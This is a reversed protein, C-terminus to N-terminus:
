QPPTFVIDQGDIQYIHIYDVQYIGQDKTFFESPSKPWFPQTEDPQNRNNKFGVAFSSFISQYNNMGDIDLDYRGEIMGPKYTFHPKGDFTFTMEYETWLLGYTHFQDNLTTGEKSYFKRDGGKLGWLSRHQMGTQYGASTPWLHLTPEAWAANGYSENVDIEQTFQGSNRSTSDSTTWLATWLGGGHPIRVSAELYGYKFKMKEHTIIMGGYYAKEDFSAQMKMIGNQITINNPSRFSTKNNWGPSSSRSGGVITWVNQNIDDISNGDFNELFVPRYFTTASHKKVAQKYDGDLNDKATFNHNAPANELIISLEAIATALAHISGGNVLCRSGEFRIRFEDHRLDSSSITNLPTNGVVIEANFESKDDDRVFPVMAGALLKIAEQLAEIQMTAIYSFNYEPAVIRTAPGIAVGGISLTKPKPIPRPLATQRINLQNLKLPADSAIQLSGSAKAEFSFELTEWADKAPKLAQRSLTTGAASVTLNAAEAKYMLRVHYANGPAVTYSDTRLFANSPIIFPTNPSLNKPAGDPFDVVHADYLAYLTIDGRPVTAHPTRIVNGDDTRKIEYWGKFEAGDIPKPKPLPKAIYADALPQIAGNNNLFINKAALNSNKTLAPDPKEVEAVILDDLHTIVDITQREQTYLLFILIPSDIVTKDTKFFFGINHWQNDVKLNTAFLGRSKGGPVGIGDLNSGRAQFSIAIDKQCEVKYRVEVMYYTDPKLLFPANAGDIIAPAVNENGHNSNQNLYILGLEDDQKYRGTGKPTYISGPRNFRNVFANKYSAYYEDIGDACAEFSNKFDRDKWAEFPIEFNLNPDKLAEGQPLPDGTKLDVTWSRGNAHFQIPRAYAQLVLILLLVLLSHIRRFNGM